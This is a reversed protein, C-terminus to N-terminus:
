NQGACYHLIKRVLAKSFTPFQSSSENGYWLLSYTAVEPDTDHEIGRLFSSLWDVLWNQFYEEVPNSGCCVM